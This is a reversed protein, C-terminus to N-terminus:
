GNRPDRHDTFQEALRSLMGTRLETERLLLGGGDSSILGGNFKGIVERRGFAHFELQEATCETM